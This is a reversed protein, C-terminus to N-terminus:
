DQSRFGPHTAFLETPTAVVDVPRDWPQVPLLDFVEVDHVLAVTVADEGAFALARDYWGAGMGLRDGARTVGLAPCIIVEAEALTRAGLRPTSPEAIGHVGVRLRDPGAYRAWDPESAGPRPARLDAPDGPGDPRQVAGASASPQAEAPNGPVSAAGSKATRSLVPLLVRVGSAHLAAILELTGPEDPRSLYGAVTLGPGVRGALFGLLLKTRAADDTRRDEPSRGARVTRVASRLTRKAGALAALDAASTPSDSAGPQTMAGDYSAIRPRPRLLLM